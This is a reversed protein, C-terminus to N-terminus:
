CLRADECLRGTSRAAQNEAGDNARRSKFSSFRWGKCSPL